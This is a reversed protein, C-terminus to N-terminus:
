FNGNFAAYKGSKSSNNGNACWNNWIGCRSRKKYFQNGTKNRKLFGRTKSAYGVIRKHPKYRYKDLYTEPLYPKIDQYFGFTRAAFKFGQYTTGFVAGKGSNIVTAKASGPQPSSTVIM